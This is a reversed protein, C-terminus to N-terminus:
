VTNPDFTPQAYPGYFRVAYQFQTKNISNRPYPSQITIDSAALVSQDTNANLFNHAYQIIAAYLELPTPNAATLAPLATLPITLKKATADYASGTGFLDTVLPQAM